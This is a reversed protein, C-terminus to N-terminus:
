HLVQSTRPTEPELPSLVATRFQQLFEQLIPGTLPQGDERAVIRFENAYQYTVAAFHTGPRKPPAVRIESLIMEGAHFRDDVHPLLTGFGATLKGLSSLVATAMCSDRRIMWVAAAPIRFLRRLWELHATTRYKRVIAMERTIGDLLSPWDLSDGILRSVFKYSVLNAATGGPRDERLDVPIMIRMWRRGREPRQRNNWEMCTRLLAALLWDNLTGGTSRVASKLSHFSDPPLRTDLVGPPSSPQRASGTAAPTNALPETSALAIRIRRLLAQCRERASVPPRVSPIRARDILQNQDAPPLPDPIMGANQMRGYAAFWELLFTFLGSGDACAHHFQVLLRASEGRPQLLLRLGPERFLNLPQHLRGSTDAGPAETVLEPLRASPIWNWHRSQRSVCATLLPHRPLVDALATRLLRDDIRGDLSMEVTCTMPYEPRDDLLMFREFPTCPLPFLDAIDTSM